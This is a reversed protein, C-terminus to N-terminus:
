TQDEEHKPAGAPPKSDPLLGFAGDITGRVTLQDIVAPARLLEQGAADMLQDHITSAMVERMALEKETLSLRQILMFLLIPLPMLDLAIGAAWFPEFQGAHTWVAEAANVRELGALPGRAAPMAADLEAITRKSFGELEARNQGLAEQQSARGAKSRASLPYKDVVAPSCRGM